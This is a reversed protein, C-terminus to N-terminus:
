IFYYLIFALAFGIAGGVIVEPYTHGIRNGIGDAIKLKPQQIEAVKKLFKGQQELEMRIGVADRILLTAIIFTVAFATSLVGEQLGIATLLSILFASHSSPMGGYDDVSKVNFKGNKTSKILVKIGQAFLGAILSIILIKPIVELM